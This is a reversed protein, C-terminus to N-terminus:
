VLPRGQRMRRKNVYRIDAEQIRASDQLLINALDATAHTCWIKGRFGDKVLKPLLGAHDIHAHSLVVVDVSEPDFGWHRNLMDTDAGMGQFLGCDLLIRSGNDTQVLHKSGTVTRAAGHFSIKM